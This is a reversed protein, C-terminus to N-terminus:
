AIRTWKVGNPIPGSSRLTQEQKHLLNIIEKKYVLIYKDGDIRYSTKQRIDFYKFTIIFNKMYLADADTNSAKKLDIDLILKTDNWNLM